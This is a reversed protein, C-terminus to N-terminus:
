RLEIKGELHSFSSERSGFGCATNSRQILFPRWSTNIWQCPMGGASAVQSFKMSMLCRSTPSARPSLPSIKLPSSNHAYSALTLKCPKRPVPHCPSNPTKSYTRVRFSDQNLTLTQQTLNSTRPLPKYKNPRLKGRRKKKGNYHTILTSSTHLSPFLVNYRLEKKPLNGAM